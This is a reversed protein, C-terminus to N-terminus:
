LIILIIVNHFYKADYHDYRAGTNAYSVELLGTALALAAGTSRLPRKKSSSSVPWPDRQLETLLDTLNIDCTQLPQLFRYAPSLPQDTPGRQQNPNNPLPRGIGLMDRIQKAQLAKTGHFVYSKSCGECGLEHVKVIKGFTILGVLADPPLLSLSTQLSDKLAGLEEDDM